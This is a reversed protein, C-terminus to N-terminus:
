KKTLSEIIVKLSGSNILETLESTSEKYSYRGIRPTDSFVDMGCIEAEIVKLCFSDYINPFYYLTKHQNMIDNVKDHEIPDMVIAGLSRLSGVLEEDNHNGVFTWPGEMDQQKMINLTELCNRAMSIDGVYLCGQRDEREENKFNGIDLPPPTTIPSTVQFYTSFVNYQMPSIFFSATAREFMYGWTNYFTKFKISPPQTYLVIPLDHRFTYFTKDKMIAHLVPHPWYGINAFIYRDHSMVKKMDPQKKNNIDDLNWTLIDVEHGLTELETKIKDNVLAAGGLYTEITEDNLIAYKMKIGVGIPTVIKVFGFM